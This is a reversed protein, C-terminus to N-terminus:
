RSAAPAGAVKRCVADAVPAIEGDMGICRCAGSLMACGRLQDDAGGDGTGGAVQPTAKPREAALAALEAIAQDGASRTCQEHPVDMPQSKDDLCHCADPGTVRCDAPSGSTTTVREILSAQPKTSPPDPLAAPPPAQELRTIREALADVKTESRYLGAALLLCCVLAVIAISRM